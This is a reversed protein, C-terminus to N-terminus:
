KGETIADGATRSIAKRIAASHRAEPLGALWSHTGGTIVTQPASPPLVEARAPTVGPPVRRATWLSRRAAHSAQRPDQWRMLAVVAAVSLPM